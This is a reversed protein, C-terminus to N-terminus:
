FGDLEVDPITFLLPHVGRAGLQLLTTKILQSRSFIIWFTLYLTNDPWVVSLGLFSYFTWHRQRHERDELLSQYTSSINRMCRSCILHACKPFYANGMCSQCIHTLCVLVFVLTCICNKVLREWISINGCMLNGLQAREQVLQTVCVMLIAKLTCM